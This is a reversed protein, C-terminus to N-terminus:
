RNAIISESVKEGIMVCASHTQSNVTTPMVSGDAVRLGEVGHVRLRADVVAADGTGMRCTGVPHFITDATRRVFTRLDAVTRSSPNPDAAAGLLGAYPRTEALALALRVGEVLADLDEEAGFYSPTIVPAATPDASRLRVMGRSRPQSVAVTLTVFPDVVDLGRGVYFQLDPPLPSVGRRSYTFLGASVTSPAMPQRANWRVSVRPHDHLNAGVGPLDATVEIGHSRLEDAPGIGSLMLIKPSEIVGASVIVERAVTVREVSKARGVEVGSVRRGTMTLRLVRSDPWVVLNPRKLVPSLFATAASHRRGNRINKQYYGAGQEQQPGNFDWDARGGFGLERAAALFAIHGAHPDTTDSVALPGGSGHHDSRGRSNDEARLFYPLVERYAWSAGVDEAWADYCLQHGRVYAMANLASSGGYTRGRPWKLSRGALGPDPETSYNWDVPTGMLSTWKGPVPILPHVDPGGAEILLVRTHPDASLRNAIVCGSSGAGIVVYDFAHSHNQSPGSQRSVALGGLM